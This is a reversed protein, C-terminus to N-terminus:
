SRNRQPFYELPVIIKNNEPRTHCTNCGLYWIRVGSAPVAETNVVKLRGRCDACGCPEGPTLKQRRQMDMRPRM